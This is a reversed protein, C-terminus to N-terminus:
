VREMRRLVTDSALLRRHVDDRYPHQRKTNSKETSQNPLARYIADLRKGFCRGQDDTSGAAANNVSNSPIPYDKDSEVM